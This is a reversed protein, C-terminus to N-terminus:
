HAPHEYVTVKGRTTIRGISSSWRSGSPVTAAPRSRLRAEDTSARTSTSRAGKGKTTIRGISDGRANTFWLAGDPGARIERPAEISPHRYVTVKGRTTIRGISDGAENTFWLAGDRGATIGRPGAIIGRPFDIRPDEYVTVKGKTTIRGISGAGANTFWLAGDPGVTIGYPINIRPHEYVAVKGKTTIRGISDGNTFWLAGDAGATIGSPTSASNAFSTIVVKPGAAGPSGEAVPQAAAGPGVPLIPVLFGAAALVVLRKIMCGEEGLGRIRRDSGNM